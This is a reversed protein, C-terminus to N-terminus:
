NHKKRDPLLSIVSKACAILHLLAYEVRDIVCRPLGFAEEELNPSTFQFLAEKLEIMRGHAEQCGGFINQKNDWEILISAIRVVNTSNVWADM